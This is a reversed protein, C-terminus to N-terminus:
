SPIGGTSKRSPERLWSPKRFLEFTSNIVLFHPEATFIGSWSQNDPSGTRCVNYWRTLVHPTNPLTGSGVSM